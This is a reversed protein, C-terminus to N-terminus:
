APEIAVPRETVAPAGADRDRDDVRADLAAVRRDTAREPLADADLEVALVRRDDVVIRDVDDAM